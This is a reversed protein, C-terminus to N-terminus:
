FATAGTLLANLANDGAIPTDSLTKAASVAAMTTPLVQAQSRGAERAQDNEQVEDDSFMLDPPFNNVEAYRKLAKGLDILRIPDPLGAAKAAASLNGAMAFVDQMAVSESSQQAMRMISVFNIKLTVQRLSEPIPRLMRRRELIHFTRQIVPAAFENEFLNVFPGLVQLRELDRKTLELQNRPQVGQMRTIAMFTDVFLCREIRAQVIKIDETLAPLWGPNVEFAPTFGKKGNSM